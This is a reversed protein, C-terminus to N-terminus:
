DASLRCTRWNERAIFERIARPSNTTGTTERQEAPTMAASTQDVIEAEINEIDVSPAPLNTMM